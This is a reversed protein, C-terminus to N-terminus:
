CFMESFRVEFMMKKGPYRNNLHAAMKEILEGWKSYNNPPSTIGKYHTVTRQPLFPGLM